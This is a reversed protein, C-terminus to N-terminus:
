KCLTITAHAAVEYNTGAWSTGGLVQLGCHSKLDYGSQLATEGRLSTREQLVIWGPLEPRHPVTGVASADFSCGLLATVLPAMLQPAALPKGGGDEDTHAVLSVAKVVRQRPYM